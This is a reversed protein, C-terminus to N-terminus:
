SDPLTVKFEIAALQEPSNGISELFPLWRPDDHINAFLPQSSILSVADKYEVAKDLWEFARDAEGRWALIYAVNFPALQGYQEILEALATDSEDAQGLAHYALPLGIMRWVSEELQMAELAAQPEGRLLLVVGINYQTVSFGPSLTLATRYSAISEDWRGAYYYYRGM